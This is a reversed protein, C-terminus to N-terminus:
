LGYGDYNGSYPARHRRGTEFRASSSSEDKDTSAKHAKLTQTTLDLRQETTKLIQQSKHLAESLELIKEADTKEAGVEQVEARLDESKGGIEDFDIGFVEDLLYLLPDDMIVPRLYRDDKFVSSTSLDLM